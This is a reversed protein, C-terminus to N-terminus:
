GQPVGAHGQENFDLSNRCNEFDPELNRHDQIELTERGMLQIMKARKAAEIMQADVGPMTTAERKDQM